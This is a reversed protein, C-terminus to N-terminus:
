VLNESGLEELIKPYVRKILFEVDWHNFFPCKKLDSLITELELNLAEVSSQCVTRDLEDFLRIAIQTANEADIRGETVAVELNTGAYHKSIVFKWDGCRGESIIPIAMEPHNEAFLRTKSVIEDLDETLMVIYSVSDPVTVKFLVNSNFDRRVENRKIPEFRLEDLDITLSMTESFSRALDKVTPIKNM